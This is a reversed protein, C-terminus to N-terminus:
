SNQQRKRATAQELLKKEARSLSAMGTDAIKQLIRDVEAAEEQERQAEKAAAKVQRTSLVPKATEAEDPDAQGYTLTLAYEDDEFGMAQDTWQLQKHTIYCTLGGFLAIGILWGDGQVMGFIGLLIAGVYGIRVAIRMSRSYGLRPWLLSQMIRGGDFPFVPLLNFLLVMVNVHNLAFLFM